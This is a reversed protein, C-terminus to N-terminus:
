KDASGVFVPAKGEKLHSPAVVYDGRVAPLVIRKTVDTNGATAVYGLGGVVLGFTAYTVKLPTYFLSFLFSGVGYAVDQGTTSETAQSAAQQAEAEVRGSLVPSGILVVILFVASVSRLTNKM